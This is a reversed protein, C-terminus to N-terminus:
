ENEEPSDSNEPIEVEGNDPVKKEIKNNSFLEKLSDFEKRYFIGIGQTYAGNQNLVDTTNSRNFAKVRFKGEPTVKVEVNVDGIINSTRQSSANRDGAVGLNGDIIVRDDFLQTSLAMEFEQDTIEDGPRYNFGIDVESSIQSLWNSLQNSLLESSTTGVGYGLATNYQMATPPLFRNLVLLSFVQRNMEQETTIQREVAERTTEDSAPLNIDFVISPNFLTEGIELVVDVPVRRRYVDSSDIDMMIDYLSARLRYLAKLDINADFPDGAWRITGGQEIRFRKNILNQLTFLYDGEQITYDGFMLFEGQPNIEMKINGTGRGRIIDGIQSDFIIQVEADPTVDLDFNMSIGPPPKYTTQPTATAVTDKTVFTIFQNEKIEGAYNVPLFLQTGRNTRASINFMIDNAPGHIHAIGTAFARGYFMEDSAPTTNLLVMKEPKITIDLEFDRFSNHKIIGTAKGYNGISDYISIDTFEFSHPRVKLSDAFSYPVNLYDIRLRTRQLQVDGIIEPATLPGELRLNGTALGRVSSAFSEMYRGFMSMRLNLVKVDLDFNDKENEAEPYIYGSIIVPKVSGVNGYYVIEGNVFFGDKEADWKSSLLLDGLYENNFGFDKIDVNAAVGMSGYFDTLSVSGSIQGDFDIKKGKLLVDLNYIEFDNFSLELRRGSKESVSGDISIFESGKSVIFDNVQIDSSDIKIYNDESIRWLSDNVIFYSPQFKLDFKDSAEFAILGQINGLTKNKFRKNDWKFIYTLTDSGINGLMSFNDVWLSDTLLVKEGSLLFGLDGNDTDAILEWNKLVNGFIDISSASGSLNFVNATNSFNGDFRTGPEIQLSPFFVETIEDVQGIELYFDFYQIIEEEDEGPEVKEGLVAPIYGKLFDQFAVGLEYFKFNGEIGIDVIDSQVSIKSNESDINDSSLAITNISIQNETTTNNITERYVTNNIYIDGVSNEFDVFSFKMNVMTSLESHYLSDRQYINLMTLNAKELNLNFDFHQISDHYEVMGDFGLGLNEDDILISGNFKRNQLDGFIEINKYNYGLLGLSEVNGTLKVDINNIDVGSGEVNSSFTLLGLDKENHFLKGLDLGAADLVGDYAIRKKTDLARIVIDTSVEGVDTTLMGYSVFDDIFGTFSGDFSINGVNDFNDPMILEPNQLTFPEYYMKLDAVHSNLEKVSINIFTEYIDPLGSMNLNGSFSTYNGAELKLDRIRMGSVKGLFVGEISVIDDVSKLTPYFFAVDSVDIVSPKIKLSINVDNIFDDFAQLGDYKLGADFALLSGSTQLEFSDARIEVPSYRIFASINDITLGSFETFSFKELHFDITDNNFDIDSLLLNLNSIALESTNIVPIVIEETKDSFTFGSSKFEFAKCFVKWNFELTDEPEAALYDTIFTFNFDEEDEARNINLFTKEFLLKEITIKQNRVSISHMDLVLKNSSLLVKGKQDYLVIDEFIIDLFINLDVGGLEIKTDFEDSVYSVVYNVIYRQVKSSRLAFYALM